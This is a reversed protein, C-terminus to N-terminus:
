GKSHGSSVGSLWAAGSNSAASADRSALWSDAFSVAVVIAALISLAKMMNGLSPSMM